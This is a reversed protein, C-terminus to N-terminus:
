ADKDGMTSWNDRIWKQALDTVKLYSTSPTGDVEQNIRYTAWIMNRMKPPLKYWHKSCGWMAPPVQKTCYPWHCTHDRTQGASKVHEVKDNM